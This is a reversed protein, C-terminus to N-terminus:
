LYKAKLADAMRNVTGFPNEVTREKDPNVLYCRAPSVMARAILQQPAIGKSWLIQWVNERRRVLSPVEEQAFVEFGTPVIGWVILGKEVDLVIGPFHESAQVYVDEYYSYNPLQPWFAVDLSLAMELACKQSTGPASGWEEVLGPSQEDSHAGRNGVIEM